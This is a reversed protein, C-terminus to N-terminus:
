HGSHRSLLPDEDMWRDIRAKLRAFWNKDHHLQLYPAFPASLNLVLFQHFEAKLTFLQHNSVFAGEGHEIYRRQDLQLLFIRLYRESLDKMFEGVNRGFLFGSPATELQFKQMYDQTMPDDNGIIDKTLDMVARYVNFRKDFLDQKLQQRQLYYQMLAVGVAVLVALLPAFAALIDIWDKTHTHAIM